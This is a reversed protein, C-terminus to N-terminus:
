AAPESQQFLNLCRKFDPRVPEPQQFSPFAPRLGHNVTKVARQGGKGIEIMDTVDVFHDDVRLGRNFCATRASEIIRFDDLRLYLADAGKDVHLKM